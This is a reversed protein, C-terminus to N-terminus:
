LPREDREDNVLNDDSTPKNEIYSFAYTNLYYETTLTILGDYDITYDKGEIM